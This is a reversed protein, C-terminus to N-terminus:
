ITCRELRRADFDVFEIAYVCVCIRIRIRILACPANCRFNYLLLNNLSDSQM